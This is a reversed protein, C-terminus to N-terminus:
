PVEIEDRQDGAGAGGHIPGIDVRQHLFHDRCTLKGAGIGRDHDTYLGAHKKSSRQDAEDVVFGANGSNEADVAESIEDGRPAQVFDPLTVDRRAIM